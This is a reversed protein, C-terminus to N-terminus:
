PLVEHRIAHRDFLAFVRALDDDSGNLEVLLQGYPTDKIRSITGQLITIL